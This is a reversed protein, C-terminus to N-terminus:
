ARLAQHAWFLIVLIRGRGSQGKSLIDEGAPRFGIWLNTASNKFSLGVFGTHRYGHRKEATFVV